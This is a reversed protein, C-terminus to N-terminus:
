HLVFKNDTVDERDSEFSSRAAFFPKKWGHLSLIKAAIDRRIYSLRTCFSADDIAAAQTSSVWPLVTLNRMEDEIDLRANLQIFKRVAYVDGLIISWIMGSVGFFGVDNVNAGHNVADAILDSVPKGTISIAGPIFVIVPNNNTDRYSAANRIIYDVALPNPQIM